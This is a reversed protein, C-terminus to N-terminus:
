RALVSASYWKECVEKATESVTPIGFVRRMRWRKDSSTPFSFSVEQQERERQKYMVVDIARGNMRVNGASKM